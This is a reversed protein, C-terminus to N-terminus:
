EEEQDNLLPFLRSRQTFLYEAFFLLNSQHEEPLQRFINLLQREMSTQNPERPLLGAMRLLNLEDVRLAKAISTIIEYGAPKEPYRGLARAISTGSVKARGALERESWGRLRMQRNLFETLDEM